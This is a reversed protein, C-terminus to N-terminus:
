HTSKFYGDLMVAAQKVCPNIETFLDKSWIPNICGAVGAIFGGKPHIAVVATIPEDSWIPLSGSGVIEVTSGFPRDYINVPNLDADENENVMAEFTEIGVSRSEAMDRFIKSEEYALELSNPLNEADLQDNDVLIDAISEFVALATIASPNSSFADMALNVAGQDISPLEISFDLMFRKIANAAIFISDSQSM